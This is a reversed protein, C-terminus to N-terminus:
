APATARQRGKEWALQWGLARLHALTVNREVAYRGADHYAANEDWALAPEINASTDPLEQAPVITRIGKRAMAAAFHMDEANRLHIPPISWMSAAWESRFLWSCCGFDVRTDRAVQGRDAVYTGNRPDNARDPLICGQGCIVAGYRAQRACARDLWGRGPIMDDDIITVLPTRVLTALAFRGFFSLDDESRFYNVEAWDITRVVPEPDLHDGCHYIWVAEPPRSQAALAALQRELTARKWVTLVATLAEPM